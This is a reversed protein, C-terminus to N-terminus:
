SPLAHGHLFALYSCFYDIDKKKYVNNALFRKIKESYQTVATVAIRVM